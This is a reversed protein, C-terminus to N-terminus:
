KGKVADAVLGLVVFIFGVAILLLLISLFASATVVSNAINTTIKTVNASPWISAVTAFQGLVALLVIFFIGVFLMELGVAIISGLGAANIQFQGLAEDFDIGLKDSGTFLLLLMFAHIREFIKM